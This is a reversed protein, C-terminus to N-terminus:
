YDECLVMRVRCPHRNYDQRLVNLVTNDTKDLTSIFLGRYITMDKFLQKNYREFQKASMGLDLKGRSPSHENRNNNDM